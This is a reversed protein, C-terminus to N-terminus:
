EKIIIKRKKKREIKPMRITLIGEKMSAEIRSPDVETPLIIQRSFSGWYCEQYFYNREEELGLKERKGKILLVDSEVSIDLDEPKIGAIASQIVLESDTQFVDVALEGESELWREKKEPEEKKEVGSEIPKIGIELKPPKTLKPAKKPKETIKEEPKKTIEEEVPIEIGLSKKLKELFSM